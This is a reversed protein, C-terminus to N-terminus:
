GIIDCPPNLFFDFADLSIGEEDSASMAKRSSMKKMTLVVNRLSCGRSTVNGSASAVCFISSARLSM